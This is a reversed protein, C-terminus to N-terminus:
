EEKDAPEAATTATEVVRVLEGTEPDQRYAGGTQPPPPPDIISNKKAM